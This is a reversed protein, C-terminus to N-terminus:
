WESETEEWNKWKESSFKEHIIRGKLGLGILILIGATLLGIKLIRNM